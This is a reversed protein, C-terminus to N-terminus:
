DMKGPMNKDYWDSVYTDQNRVQRKEYELRDDELKKVAKQYADIKSLFSKVEPAHKVLDYRHIPDKPVYKFPPVTGRNGLVAKINKTEKETYVVMSIITQRWFERNVINNFEFRTILKVLQQYPKTDQDNHTVDFARIFRSDGNFLTNFFKYSSSNRRVHSMDIDDPTIEYFGRFVFAVLRNDERKMTVRVEVFKERWECYVNVVRLMSDYLFFKTNQLKNFDSTSFLHNVIFEGFDRPTKRVGNIWIHRSPAIMEYSSVIHKHREIVSFDM